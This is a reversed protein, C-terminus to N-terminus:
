KRQTGLREVVIERLYAEAPLGRDKAARRIQSELEPGLDLTM